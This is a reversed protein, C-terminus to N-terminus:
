DHDTTSDRERSAFVLFMLGLFAAGVAVAGGAAPLVDGTRGMAWESLALGLVFAVALAGMGIAVMLWLLGHDSLPRPRNSEVRRAVASTTLTVVWRVEAAIDTVARGAPRVGERVRITHYDLWLRAYQAWGM